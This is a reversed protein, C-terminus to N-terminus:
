WNGKLQGQRLTSIRKQSPHPVVAMVRCLGRTPGGKVDSSKQHARWESFSGASHKRPQDVAEHNKM